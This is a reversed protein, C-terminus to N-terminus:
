KEEAQKESAAHIAGAVKGDISSPFLERNTPFDFTIAQRVIVRKPDHLVWYDNGPGDMDRILISDYGIEKAYDPLYRTWTNDIWPSVPVSPNAYLQNVPNSLDDPSFRQKAWDLFADKEKLYDMVNGSAIEATFVAPNAGSLGRGIAVDDAYSVAVEASSGLYIGSGFDGIESNKFGNQRILGEVEGRTGHYALRREGLNELGEFSGRDINKSTLIRKGQPTKDLAETVEKKAQERVQDLSLATVDTGGSPRGQNPLGLKEKIVSEVRVANRQATAPNLNKPKNEKWAKQVAKGAGYSIAEFGANAFDAGLEQSERELEAKTQAGMIDAENKLISAGLAGAGAAGAVSGITGAIPLLALSGGATFPAGLLAGATLVLAGIGAWAAGLNTSAILGDVTSKRFRDNVGSIAESPHIILDSFGKVAGKLAEIPHVALEKLSAAAYGIARKNGEELKRSTSLELRDSPVVSGIVGMLKATGRKIAIAASQRASGTGTIRTNAM